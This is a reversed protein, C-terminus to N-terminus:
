DSNGSNKSEDNTVIIFGASVETGTEPKSDISFIGGLSECRSRIGALGTGSSPAAPDFGKGNDSVTLHIRNSDFILHTEITDAGSHRIANNILEQAIRYLGTEFRAPIRLSEGFSSFLIRYPKDRGLTICYDEIADRLGLKLLTEPMMNRAVRRLEGISQDLIDIAKDFDAGSQYTAVYNGKVSNLTFRLGTLLGGLGDHLDRAIRKREKEAGEIVSENAALRRSQELEKIKRERIQVEQEALRRRDRLSRFILMTVVMAAFFLVALGILYLRNLRKEEELILIQNEKKLTEYKVQMSTIGDEIQRSHMKESLSRYTELSQLANKPDKLEIYIYLLLLENYMVTVENSSDSAAVALLAYRLAEQPDGLFNYARAIKRLINVHIVANASTTDCMELANFLQRLAEDYEKRYDMLADALNSIVYAEMFPKKLYHYLIIEEEITAFVNVTDNISFYYETMGLLTSAIGNTDGIERFIELAKLSHEASREENYMDNYVLAINSIVYAARGKSGARELIDLAAQYLPLAETFKGYDALIEAKLNYAEALNSSDNSETYEGIARDIYYIGSDLTMTTITRSYWVDGRISPPTASKLLREAETAYSTALPLDNHVYHTCLQNLITLRTNNDAARELQAILSDPDTKQIGSAGATTHMILLAIIVLPTQLKAM